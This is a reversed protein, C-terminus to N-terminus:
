LNDDDGKRPYRTAGVFGKDRAISATQSRRVGRRFWRAAPITTLAGFALLGFGAIRRRNAPLRQTLVLALGAGLAARTAVVFGFAPLPLTINRM